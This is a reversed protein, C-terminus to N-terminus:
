GATPTPRSPRATSPSRWGRRRCTQAARRRPLPGVVDFSSRAPRRRRSRAACWRRAPPPIPGCGGRAPPAATSSSRSLAVRYGLVARASSRCSRPVGDARTAALAAADLGLDVATAALPGPRALEGAAQRGAALRGRRRAAGRLRDRVPPRAQLPLQGPRRGGAPRRPAARVRHHAPRDRRRRRQRGPRLRELRRRGPRAARPQRGAGRPGRRRRDGPRRRQRARRVGRGWIRSPVRHRTGAGRRDARAARRRLAAWAPDRRDGAPVDVHYAVELHPAAQRPARRGAVGRDAAPTAPAPAIPLPTAHAAGTPSCRPWGSLPYSCRPDTASIARAARSQASQCRARVRLRAVRSPASWPSPTPARPASRWPWRWSARPGAGPQPRPAVPVAGSGLRLLPRRLRRDHLAGGARRV